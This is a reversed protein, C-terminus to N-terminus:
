FVKGRYCVLVGCEVYNGEDPSKVKEKANIKRRELKRRM